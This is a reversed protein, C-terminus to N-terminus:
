SDALHKAASACRHLKLSTNFFVVQIDAYQQGCFGSNFIYEQLGSAFSTKAETVQSTAHTPAASPAPSATGTTSM